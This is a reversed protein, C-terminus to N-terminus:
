FFRATHSLFFSFTLFMSQVDSDVRRRAQQFPQFRLPLHYSRSCQNKSPPLQYHRSRIRDQTTAHISPGSTRSTSRSRRSHCSLGPNSSSSFLEDTFSPLYVLLHVKHFTGSFTNVDTLSLRHRCHSLASHEGASLFTILGVDVGMKERVIDKLVRRDVEFPMAGHLAADAKREKRRDAHEIEWSWQLPPPRRQSASVLSEDDSPIVSIDNGNQLM